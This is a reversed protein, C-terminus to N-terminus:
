AKGWLQRSFQRAFELVDAWDNVRVVRWGQAKIREVDKTYNELHQATAHLLLTGGGGAAPLAKEAVSWGSRAATDKGHTETLSSFIDTDTLILVHTPRRPITLSAVMDELRFIGYSYGSGLYDTLLRSVSEQDRRFGETAISKGPEGSLCAMVRAGARLASLAVIFGALVPYSLTKQPNPMSGSCDIGIYLDLPTKQPDTGPTDGYTRALTTVGPVVHPSHTVSELWDVETIPRGIDWTELGELIPEQVQPTSREPFRILYPLARERYYHATVDADNASPNLQKLLERYAEVGRYRSLTKHGNADDSSDPNASADDGNESDDGTDGTVAADESPHLVPGLEDDDIESLGDPLEGGTGDSDLLHGAAKRLSQNEKETMYNLCLAAFSSAGKLWERAYVRILRAGLRADGDQGATLPQQVLTGRDLRWLHEYIRLYLHWLVSGHKGGDGLSAYIGDLHLGHNRQLRDNIFLDAYLNAIMPAQDEFGPLGRRVRALLRGQDTLDGPCYIHYGIEQGMVELPFGALGREAIDQINLVVAHDTLRIMAFSMTLRERQADAATLCWVPESLRAYTSWLALAQPWLARWRELVAPLDASM